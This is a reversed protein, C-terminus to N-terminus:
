PKPPPLAMREISTLEPKDGRNGSGSATYLYGDVIAFGTGHRGTQLSPWVQWTQSGADFVEIENHAVVHAVSEGGGVVIQDHWAIAMNGARETPIAMAESVAAWKELTFDFVNGYRETLEMTQGTGQSSRRGAFVYLKDGAVAAQLHDRAHPADPLVRWSGRRPDFEDLWARAGGVHGNTIGGVVYIKDNYVAVGAAGRRRPRPIESGWKFRDESPFYKLVRELPTENPYNGTMAGILYIADGYSVAQVHHLELPPTARERWRRTVPDFEDVPKIGRGGILYLKGHHAVFTAEHRATPAGIATVTEFSSPTTMCGTTLATSIILCAFHLIQCFLRM